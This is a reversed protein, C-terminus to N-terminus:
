LRRTLTCFLGKTCSFFGGAAPLGAFCRPATCYRRSIRKHEPPSVDSRPSIVELGM